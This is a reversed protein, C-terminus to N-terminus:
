NLIRQIQKEWLFNEAFNRSIEYLEQKNEPLKIGEEMARALDSPTSDCYLFHAFQESGVFRTSIVPKGSCLYELIKSPFNNQNEPLEMNRPNILVDAEGLARLYAEYPLHGLYSIREDKQSAERVEEAMSGRGTLLIRVPFSAPLLKIGELLLDIGTVKELLGAYLVTYIDNKQECPRSFYQYLDRDIGGEMLVFRQRKRLLEGIHESLGVVTDFSRFCAQMGCAYIKRAVQRYCEPGSYDAIIAVSKTKKRRAWTPLRLWAYLINYCVVYDNDYLRAKLLRGFERVSRLKGVLGSGATVGYWAGYKGQLLSEKQETELPVGVFSLTEVEYGSRQMNRILNNQFRNGAASIQEAETELTEPVQSGVFLVKKGRKSCIEEFIENHVRAMAQITYKKAIELNSAGASEWGDKQELFGEMAEALAEADEPPIIDRNKEPLMEMGAVCASTTLVPLGAAMAENIVLGWIDERTPLVFLDAARYYKKLTDKDMFPLFEMCSIKLREMQERYEPLIEGGIICYHIKQESQWEALMGAAEILLDYGKRPIFQGVSLLLTGEEPLGLEKRLAKKQDEAYPEEALDAEDISTFPYRHIRQAAAGYCTLYADCLAGTSLYGEAGSLFYRKLAAKAGRTEGPMGGDCNILYPIRHKKLYRIAYMGTPTSYVGVVIVDYKTPDLYHIVEPCFASSSLRFRSKLFISQYGGAAGTDLWSDDRDTAIDSEYLVTLECTKALEKFFAVRYPSPVNTLFLVNM